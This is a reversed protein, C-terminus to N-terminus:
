NLWYNNIIATLTKIGPLGDDKLDVGNEDKHKRQFEQVKTFTIKGFIGDDEIELFKQLAKVAEKDSKFEALKFSEKKLYDRFIALPLFDKNIVDENLNETEIDNNLSTHQVTQPRTNQSNPVISGGDDFISDSHFVEDVEQMRKAEIVFWLIALDGLFISTNQMWWRTLFKAWEVWYGNLIFRGIGRDHPLFVKWRNWIQSMIWVNQDWVIKWFRGAYTFQKAFGGVIGWWVMWSVAAVPLDTGIDIIAENLTDYWKPNAVMSALSATVWMAAWAGIMWVGLIPWAAFGAVIAVAMVGAMKAGGLLLADTNDSFNFLGNGNGNIDNYLDFIEAQVWELGFDASNKGNWDSWSADFNENLWEVVARNAEKSVTLFLEKLESLDTIDKTWIKDLLRVLASIKIKNELSIEQYNNWEEINLVSGFWIRTLLKEGWVSSLKAVSSAVIEKPPTEWVKEDEIEIEGSNNIKDMIWWKQQLIHLIVNNSLEPDKLRNDIDWFRGTIIKAFDLFHADDVKEDQMRSFISKHLETAFSKYSTEVSKSQFNNEDIRSHTDVLYGLLWDISSYSSVLEWVLYKIETKSKEFLKAWGEYKWWVWVIFHLYRKQQEQIKIDLAIDEEPILGRTQKLWWSMWRAMLQLEKISMDKLESWFKNTSLIDKENLYEFFEDKNKTFIWDMANLINEYADLDDRLVSRTEEINESVVHEEAWNEPMRFYLVKNGTWENYYIKVYNDEVGIKKVSEISINEEIQSYLDTVLADVKQIEGVIDDGTFYDRLVEKLFIELLFPNTIEENLSDNHEVANEDRIADLTSEPM